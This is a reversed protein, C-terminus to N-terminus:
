TKSKHVAKFYVDCRFFAFYREIYHTIKYFIDIFMFMILVATSFDTKENVGDELCCFRLNSFVRAIHNVLFNICLICKSSFHDWPEVLALHLACTEEKDGDRVKFRFYQISKSLCAQNQPKANTLQDGFELLDSLDKSRIIYM